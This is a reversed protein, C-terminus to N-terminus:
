VRGMILDIQNLLKETEEMIEYQAGDMYYDGYNDHKAIAEDHSEKVFKRAKKLAIIAEEYDDYDV